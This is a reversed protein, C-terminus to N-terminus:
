GAEGGVPTLPPNDERLLQIANEFAAIFHVGLGAQEKEYWAAAEHFEQAAEKGIKVQKM